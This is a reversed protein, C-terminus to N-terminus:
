KIKLINWKNKFTIKYCLSIGTYYGLRANKGTLDTNLGAGISYGLSWKPDKTDIKPYPADLLLAGSLSDIKVLPSASTAWVKYKGDELKHGYNLKLSLTQDYLSTQGPIINNDILKFKSIGNLNYSLGEDSYKNNFKLGYSNNGYNEIENDVELSDFKINVKSSIIDVTGKISKVTKYMNEDYKKLDEIDSVLSGKEFEFQKLQKNFSQQISDFKADLNNDNLEKVFKIQNKLDRNRQCTNVFLFSMLFILVILIITLNEKKFIKKLLNLFM